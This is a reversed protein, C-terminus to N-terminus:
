PADDFSSDNTLLYWADADDGGQVALRLPLVAEKAKQLDTQVGEMQMSRPIVYRYAKAGDIVEICAAVESRGGIRPPAFKYHTTAPPGAVNIETITGGGFVAKFNKANWQQLDVELTASDSTQFTRSPFDTQASKVQEFQPEENFKLSDETTLGVSYWGAPMAVTADAPAATGVPALWVRTRAPVVIHTANTIEGAM